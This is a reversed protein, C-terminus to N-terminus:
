LPIPGCHASALRSLRQQQGRLGQLGGTHILLIREGPAFEGALVRRIFSHLLRLTYVPDLALQLAQARLLLGSLEANVKAFGLPAGEVLCWSVHRNLTRGAILADIQPQLYAFQAIAAVGELQTNAPAQLVMGALTTGTGVGVLVRDAKYEQPLLSWIRGCSVMAEDTAGGEPLLDFRGFREAFQALIPQEVDNNRERLQRYQDRQVFHLHMGWSQADELTPTLKSEGRVIGFTPIRHKQGFRALAHLHNSYAGGFSLVPRQPESRELLPQLKFWKNGSILPDIRDLRLIDVRVCHREFLPHDFPQLLATDM